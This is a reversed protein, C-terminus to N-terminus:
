AKALKLVILKKVVEKMMRQSNESSSRPWDNELAVSFDNRKKPNTSAVNLPIKKDFLDYWCDQVIKAIEIISPTWNSAANVYNIGRLNSSIIKEIMSNLCALSIFNRSQMGSSRLSLSGTDIVDNVFCFPVLTERNVTSAVPVGFVNAVRVIVLNLDYNSAYYTCLSEALCHNLAYENPPNLESQASINGVLNSGYVQFTSIYIFTKVNCKIAEKLMSETGTLALERSQQVNRAAVDNPTACHIVVDVSNLEPKESLLDLHVVPTLLEEHLQNVGSRSSGVVAHITNTALYHTLSSGIFGSAGTVFIKNM